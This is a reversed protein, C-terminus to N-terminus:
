VGSEATADYKGKAYADMEMRLSTEGPKRALRGSAMVGWYGM